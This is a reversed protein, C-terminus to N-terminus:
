KRKPINNNIADILSKYLLPDNLKRLKFCNIAQQEKHGMYLCAYTVSFSTGM